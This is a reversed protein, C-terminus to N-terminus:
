GLFKAMATVDATEGGFDGVYAVGALDFGAAQSPCDGRNQQGKGSAQSWKATSVLDSSVTDRHRERRIRASASLGPKALQSNERGTAREAQKKHGFGPRRPGSEGNM